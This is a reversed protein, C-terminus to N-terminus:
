FSMQRAKVQVIKASVALAQDLTVVGQAELVDMMKLFCGATVLSDGLATHRGHVPIGFRQAVVDLNHVATYDHLFSSLLLTDLVVMDFSVGCEPERLKLFKLDFAANHAVLVADGVFARFQPLVVEIPPKDKVMEDTIGHFCISQKPISRRPNVIREFSEGTLIRGNVIRVGAISVIEDGGSPDLGTTETDFVVYTLSKLERPGLDGLELPRRLLDFDYFEPRAPRNVIDQVIAPRAPVPLPLRLCARGPRDSLSWIDTKHRELIERLTLGGLVEELQEDLWGNLESAPLVGGCWIIDLYIRRDGSVAELDFSTTEAYGSLRAIVRGLLEILSYSDGHLWQPIGIITAVIGRQERLRDAVTQFLNSSYIDSMPWHGTIVDRYQAALRELRACLFQSEQLLVRKFGAQEEASLNVTGVLIEVAARLNGVPARLGETAERLLRDRLALTALEDTYDEFSLVYGTPTEGADLLMLSMRGEFTHKGDTTSGVFPVTRGASPGNPRERALRTTLRRLAHLIPQRTMFRFLSRDLGIDGGIRLLELARNNYLLIRHDLTCVIVGEHLDMLITALQNKQQEISATAKDIAQNVSTRALGLQRILENVAEPLGNLRHADEIEIRYDSKAHVVTEIGRVIASLPQSIARDLYAWLLAIVTIFLLAAGGGYVIVIDRIEPAAPLHRDILWAGVGVAALSAAALAGCCLILFLRLGM